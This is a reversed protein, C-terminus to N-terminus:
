VDTTQPTMPPPDYADDRGGATTINSTSGSILFAGERSAYYEEYGLQIGKKRDLYSKQSSTTSVQGDDHDDDFGDTASPPNSSEAALLSNTVEGEHFSSSKESAGCCQQYKRDIIAVVALMWYAVLGAIIARDISYLYPMLAITCFSPLAKTADDLDLFKTLSLLDVGLLVLVPASAFEPVASFIPALPLALSFFIANFIATLGTRGGVTVGAFSEGLAIVPACGFVAAVMSGAGCAFFVGHAGPLKEKSTGKNEVLDAASAVAYTIGGIDFLAILYLSITPIIAKSFKFDDFSVYSKGFDNWMSLWEGFKPTPAHVGEINLVDEGAIWGTLTVLVMPLLVASKFHKHHLFTTLVCGIAGMVLAFSISGTELMGDGEVVLKMQQFGELALLLGLGVPMADKVCFPIRRFLWWQVGSGAAATMVVSAVFCITSGFIQRSRAEEYGSREILSFSVFTSCGIGIGAPLPLNACLGVMTSSFATAAVFAFLYINKDLGKGRDYCVEPILVLQYANAIFCIFGALAETKLTSGREKVLFHAEIREVLSKM